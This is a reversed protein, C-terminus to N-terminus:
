NDYNGREIKNWIQIFKKIWRQQYDNLPYGFLLATASGKDDIKQNDLWDNYIKTLINITM